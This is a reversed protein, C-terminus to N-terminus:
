TNEQLPSNPFVYRGEFVFAALSSWTSCFDDEAGAVRPAPSSPSSVHQVATVFFFAVQRREREHPHFLNRAMVAVPNQQGQQRTAVASMTGESSGSMGALVALCYGAVSAVWPRGGRRRGQRQTRRRASSASEESRRNQDSEDVTSSGADLSVSPFSSASRNGAGRTGM